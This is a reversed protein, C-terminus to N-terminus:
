RYLTLTSSFFVTCTLFLDCVEMLARPLVVVVDDIGVASSRWVGSICGNLILLLSKTVALVIGIRNLLSASLEEIRDNRVFNNAFRTGPTPLTDM